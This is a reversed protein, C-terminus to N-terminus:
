KLFGWIVEKENIKMLVYIMNEKEYANFRGVNKILVSELLKRGYDDIYKAVLNGNKLYVKLTKGEKLISLGSETVIVRDVLNGINKEMYM